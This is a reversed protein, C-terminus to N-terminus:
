HWHNQARHGLTACPCLSAGLALLIWLKECQAMSRCSVTLRSSLCLTYAWRQRQSSPWRQSIQWITGGSLGVMSIVARHVHHLGKPNPVHCFVWSSCPPALWLLGDARARTLSYLFNAVGADKLVDQNVPDDLVEIRKAHLNRQLFSGSMSGCGDFVSVCWYPGKEDDAMELMFQVVCAWLIPIAVHKMALPPMHPHVAIVSPRQLQQLWVLKQLAPPPSSLQIALASALCLSCQQRWPQCSASRSCGGWQM